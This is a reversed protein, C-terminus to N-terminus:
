KRKYFRLSVSPAMGKESLTFFGANDHTFCIAEGQPEMAYPVIIPQRKLTAYLPENGNKKYLYINTYTKVLIESGDASLAASTVGSYDLSGEYTATNYGSLDQPYAIKYIGAKADRKTIIYIDKKAADVLLAEADHSGDPYRFNIKDYTSIKTEGAVPEPFRYIWYDTYQQVNDGIDAIYVYDTGVNPGTSLTMDEWDRNVANDLPLRKILNGSHSLLTLQPPNGSDEHIWLAGSHSKSDAIGSAEDVIGPTIVTSVPAVKFEEAPLSNELFEQQCGPTFIFTFLIFSRGNIM